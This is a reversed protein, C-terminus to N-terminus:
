ARAIAVWSRTNRDCISPAAVYGITPDNFPRLMNELYGPEPYHDADMQVVYDYREYGYKTM